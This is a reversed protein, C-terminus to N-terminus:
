RRFHLQRVALPRVAVRGKNASAEVAVAGAPVNYRATTTGVHRMAVRHVAVVAVRHDGTSAAQACVPEAHICLLGLLLSIPKLM